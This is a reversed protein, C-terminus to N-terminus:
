TESSSRATLSNLYRDVLAEVATSAHPQFRKEKKWRHPESPVPVKPTKVEPVRTVRKTPKIRKKPIAPRIPAQPPDRPVEPKTPKVPKAPPKPKGRWRPDGVTTPRLKEFRSPDDKLTEPLIYVTRDTEKNRVPIGKTRKKDKRAWRDAIRQAAESV